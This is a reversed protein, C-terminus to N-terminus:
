VQAGQLPLAFGQGSSQWSLGQGESAQPRNGIDGGKGPLLEEESRDGPGVLPM